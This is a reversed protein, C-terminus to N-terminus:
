IVILTESNKSVGVTVLRELMFDQRRKHHTRCAAFISHRSSSRPPAKNARSGGQPAPDWSPGGTECGVDIRRRNFRGSGADERGVLHLFDSRLAEAAIKRLILCAMPLDGLADPRPHAKLRVVKEGVWIRGPLM